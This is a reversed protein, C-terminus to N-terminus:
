AISDRLTAEAQRRGAKAGALAAQAQSTDTRTVEGVRFRDNTADLQRQLVQENNINLDVLAQNQIVDLYATVVGVFVNQETALLQEEGARVQADAQKTQADTQGGRYLPQSISLTGDRTFLHQEESPANRGLFNNANSSVYNEGADGNLSVTPRWNALAQPVLEDTARLQARQAQLAANGTYAAVLADELTEAHTFSPWGLGALVLAALSTRFRMVWGFGLSSGRRPRKRVLSM